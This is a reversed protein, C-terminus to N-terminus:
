ASTEQVAADLGPTEVGAAALATRCDHPWFWPTAASSSPPRDLYPDCHPLPSQREQLALVAAM